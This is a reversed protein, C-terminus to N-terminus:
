SRYKNFIAKVKVGATAEVIKKTLDERRNNDHCPLSYHKTIRLLMPRSFDQKIFYHRAQDRTTFSNLSEIIEDMTSYETGFVQEVRDETTKITEDM